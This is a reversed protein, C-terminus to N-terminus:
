PSAASTSGRGLDPSPPNWTTRPPEYTSPAMHSRPAARSVVEAGREGHTPKRQAASTRHLDRVEGIQVEVCPAARGCPSKEVLAEGAPHVKTGTAAVDVPGSVDLRDRPLNRPEAHLVHHDRAVHRVERELRLVLERTVHDLVLESEIRRLHGDHRAVVIHVCATGEHRPAELM